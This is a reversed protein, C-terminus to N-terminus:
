LQLHLKAAQVAEFGFQFQTRELSDLQFWQPQIKSTEENPFSISALSPRKIAYYLASLQWAQDDEKRYQTEIFLLAGVIPTIDALELFYHRIAQAPEENEAVIRGPPHLLGRESNHLMLIQDQEIFIGYVAPRFILDSASVAEMQGYANFIQVTSM